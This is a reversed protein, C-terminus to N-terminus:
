AVLPKGINTILSHRKKIEYKTNLVSLRAQHNWLKRIADPRAPELRPWSREPKANVGLAAGYLGADSVLMYWRNGFPESVGRSIDVENCSSGCTRTPYPAAGVSLFRESLPVFAGSTHQHADDWRWEAVLREAMPFTSFLDGVPLGCRLSRSGTCDDQSSIVHGQVDTFLYYSNVSRDGAATGLASVVAPPPHLRNTLLYWDNSSGRVSAAPVRQAIVHHHGPRDEGRLVGERRELSEFFSAPMSETKVFPFFIVLTVLSLRRQSPSPLREPSDPIGVSPILSTFLHVRKHSPEECRMFHMPQLPADDCRRPAADPLATVGTITAAMLTGWGSTRAAPVAGSMLLISSTSPRTAERCSRLVLNCPKESWLSPGHMHLRRNTGHSLPSEAGQTATSPAAFLCALARCADGRMVLFPKLSYGGM